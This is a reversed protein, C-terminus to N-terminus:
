LPRDFRFKCSDCSSGRPSRSTMRKRFGVSSLLAKRRISVLASRTDCEGLQGTLFLQAVQEKTIPQKHVKPSAKGELANKRCIANFVKNATEFAPDGVITEGCVDKPPQSTM